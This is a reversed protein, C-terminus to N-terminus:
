PLRDNAEIRERLDAALDRSLAQDSMQWNWNDEMTGPANMRAEGGLSLLDQMPLITLGGVSQLAVDILAWPMPTEPWDLVSLVHGRQEDSLSDFWGLTTNNDHTGTYVVSDVEHNQPLYPNRDDSDFAFQLIVMGPLDFQRRLRTVADTIIGLDEAIVPLVGGSDLRLAELLEAGPAEVWRGDMATECEAPIEWYSELGRFHDIRVWDFLLRHSEFRKRWWSFGDAQMRAWDFLPNGWRQGTESFYDPPVGAVVTPQGADDLIFQDRDAWTDASDHAVFIPMDGFLLIGHGNAYSRLSQWQAFLLFQEFRYQHMPGALRQRAAELAQPDRDRLGDPWDCWAQGEQEDKLARFLAYDELWDEHDLCFRSFARQGVANVGQGFRARDPRAGPEFWGTLPLQSEDLFDPNLAHSSLCQYPSGDAHTPGLPLVQWVSLGARVLFDVFRRAPAGFNGNPLSSVHLLVGARRLSCPAEPKHM